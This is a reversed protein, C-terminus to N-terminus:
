KIRKGPTFNARQIADYIDGDNLETGSRVTIVLQKKLWNAEAQQVAPVKRVLKELGGHCGPCDMGFVEYVQTESEEMSKATLEQNAATCSIGCVSLAPLILLLFLYRIM